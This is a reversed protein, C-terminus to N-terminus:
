FLISYYDCTPYNNQVEYYFVGDMMAFGDIIDIKDFEIKKPLKDININEEVITNKLNESFGSENNEDIKLPISIYVGRNETSREKKFTCNVKM